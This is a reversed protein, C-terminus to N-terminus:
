PTHRKTPLVIKTTPWLVNQREIHDPPKWAVVCKEIFATKWVYHWAIQSDQKWIVTAGRFQAHWQLNRSDACFYQQPHTVPGSMTGSQFICQNSDQQYLQLWHPARELTDVGQFHQDHDEHYLQAGSITRESPFTKPVHKRATHPTQQESSVVQAISTCWFAYLGSTHFNQKRWYQTAQTQWTSSFSKSSYNLNQKWRLLPVFTWFSLWICQRWNWSALEKWSAAEWSNWAWELCLSVNYINQQGKFKAGELFM